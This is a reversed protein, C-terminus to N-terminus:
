HAVPCRLGTAESLRTKWSSEPTKGSDSKPASASIKGSRSASTHDVPCRGAPAPGSSGSAQRAGTGDQAVAAESRRDVAMWLGSETHITAGTRMGVDAVRIDGSQEQPLDECAFTFDYRRVMRSLAVAAELIAFQDGLCRRSGGGFPVFAFDSAIEAPFLSSGVKGPDYGSWSREPVPDVPREFRTPDFTEPSEWIDPSMHINWTSIFVDAGRPIKFGSPLVDDDLSRRLLVPPQPYMRLSEALCNRLFKMEQVDAYTLRTRDGLVAGIEDRLRALHHASRGSPHFLEYITWTLVAATTEHGAILMTMLDDRLQSGSIEEGRIDVLFRLLSADEEEDYERNELEELDREQRTALAKAVLDDLTANLLAQDSLFKAQSPLLHAGPIQWYPVFSTTRFEAEQLLRYVAQVVPSEAFTSGFDYNFVARGIIDLSVSCFREEMDCVGAPAQAPDKKWAKWAAPTASFAAKTAETGRGAVADLSEVLDDNSEAFLIMMRDLWRKHFGPKLAPKRTKWVIPDAPILGQGMIPALIEALMGKDYNKANSVLIHRAMAPDSVILFSRPGFALKYMAGNEEYYRRLLLMLPGGILTQLDGTMAGKVVAGAGHKKIAGKWDWYATPSGDESDNGFAQWFNNLLIRMADIAGPKSGPYTSGAFDLYPEGKKTVLFQNRWFAPGGFKGPIKEAARMAREFQWDVGDRKEVPWPDDDDFDFSNMPETRDKEHDKSDHDKEGAASELEDITSGSDVALTATALRRGGAAAALFLAGAVCYSALRQEADDHKSPSERDSAARPRLAPDTLPRDVLASRPPRLGVSFARAAGLRTELPPRQGPQLPLFFRAACSAFLLASGGM